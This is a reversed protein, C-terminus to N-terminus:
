EFSALQIGRADLRNHADVIGAVYTV